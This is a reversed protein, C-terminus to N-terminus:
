YSCLMAWRVCGQERKTHRETLLEPPISSGADWYGCPSRVLLITALLVHLAGAAARAHQAAGDFSRLEAPKFQLSDCHPCKHERWLPESEARENEKGAEAIRGGIFRGPLRLLASAM